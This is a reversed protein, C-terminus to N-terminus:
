WNEPNLMQGLEALKREVQADSLDPHAQALYWLLELYRYACGYQAVLAQEAASAGRGLYAELLADVQTADLEDGAAVVALDYLPHGMASYEWDLAFLAGGSYVRNARLLDNHCLVAPQHRDAAGELLDMIAPRLTALRASRTPARHALRKEYCLMREALDLRHHRAPLSHIARLLGAIDAM